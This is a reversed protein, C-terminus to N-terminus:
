LRRLALMPVRLQYGACGNSVLLLIGLTATLDSVCGPARMHTCIMFRAQFNNAQSPIWVVATADVVMPFLGEADLSARGVPSTLANSAAVMAGGARHDEQQATRIVDKSPTAEDPENRAYVEVVRM